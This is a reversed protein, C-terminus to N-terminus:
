DLYHEAIVTHGDVAGDYHLAKVDQYDSDSFFAACANKDRFHIAFLRTIPHSSETQLTEAVVFDYRFGGGYRELIPRMAERYQAYRASDVVNMAVIMEYM